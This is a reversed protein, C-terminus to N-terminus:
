AYSTTEKLVVENKKEVFKQDLDVIWKMLKLGFRNLMDPHHPLIRISYGFLGNLFICIGSHNIAKTM